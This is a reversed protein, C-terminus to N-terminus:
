SVIPIVNFLYLRTDSLYLPLELLREVGSLYVQPVPMRISKDFYRVSVTTNQRYIRTVHVELVTLYGDNQERFLYKSSVFNETTPCVLEDVGYKNALVKTAHELPPYILDNDYRFFIKTALRFRVLEEPSCLGTIPVTILDASIDIAQKLKPLVHEAVLHPGVSQSLPVANDFQLKNIQKYTKFSKQKLQKLMDQIILPYIHPPMFRYLEKYVREIRSRRGPLDNCARFYKMTGRLSKDNWNCLYDVLLHYPFIWLVSIVGANDSSAYYPRAFYLYTLQLFRVAAVDIDPLNSSLLLQTLLVEYLRVIEKVQEHTYVFEVIVLFRGTVTNKNVNVIPRKRIATIIPERLPYYNKELKVYLDEGQLGNQIWKTLETIPIGSIISTLKIGNQQLRELIQNNGTTKKLTIHEVIKDFKDDSDLIIPHEEYNSTYSLFFLAYLSRVFRTLACLLPCQLGSNNLLDKEVNSILIEINDFHPRISNEVYLQEFYPLCEVVGNIYNLVIQQWSKDLLNKFAQEIIPKDITTYALLHHMTSTNEYLVARDLYSCFSGFALTDAIKHFTPIFAYPVLAYINVKQPLLSQTMTQIKVM